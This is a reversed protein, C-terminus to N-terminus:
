LRTLASGGARRLVVGIWIAVLLNVGAAVRLVAPADVGAAAMGAAAGSGAVMFLANMINNAAIMRSRQEPASAAQVIAYLPVSFVGGCAALLTLDTLMRWGALTGIMAGATAIGRATTAASSFDWCFLSIGAAAYPAFRASVKGHLLGTTALSGIGVGVAFV